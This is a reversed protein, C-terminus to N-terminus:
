RGTAPPKLRDPARLASPTRGAREPEGPLPLFRLGVASRRIAPPEPPRRGLGLAGYVGASVRDEPLGGRLVLFGGVWAAREAALRALEAGEELTGTLLSPARGIVEVRFRTEQLGDGIRRLLRAGPTSLRSTDPLFLARETLFVELADPQDRLTADGSRTLALLLTQLVDLLAAREAVVTDRARQKATLEDVSRALKRERAEVNELKTGLARAESELEATRAASRESAAEAVRLQVFLFIGVGVAAGATALLFVLVGLVSPTGLRSGSRMAAAARKASVPRRRADFTPLPREAPKWSGTPQPQVWENEV